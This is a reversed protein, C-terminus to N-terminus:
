DMSENEQEAIAKLEMYEEPSLDSYFHDIPDIKVGNHLIEYHLHPGKSLGTNGTYGILDGRKVNQGENVLIKSLHAYKTVYGYGHNLDIHKGYGNKSVGCFKVSADATAYVPTGIPARFDIGTHKKWVKLIPHMRRGYGSILLGSVPRMSPKHQLREENAAIENYLQNYSETQAEIRSMLRDIRKETEKLSNPELKSYRDTGGVGMEWMSETIRDANLITRYVDNDRDHLSDVEAEIMVLKSNYEEIKETLQNIKTKLRKEEPNDVFYFLCVIMVAALVSSVLLYGSVKLIAKKWTFTAKEYSCTETDYYYKIRAM